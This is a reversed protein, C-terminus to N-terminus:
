RILDVNYYKHNKLNEPLTTKDFPLAEGWIGNSTPHLFTVEKIKEPTWAYFIKELYDQKLEDRHGFIAYKYRMIEERQCMSFHYVTLPCSLNQLRNDRTLNEIRIPAFFDTVYYNMTRFFNIYGCLGYWREEHTYAYELAKKLEEQHYVEDLDVTLILSYGVSHKYRENRHTGEDTFSENVEWILKDGFIEKAINYLDEEKDPNVVGEPPAFGHSTKRSYSIHMVDVFDKVSELAEKAFDGFYHCACFGLVSIKKGNIEMEAM